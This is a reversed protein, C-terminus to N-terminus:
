GEAWSPSRRASADVDDSTFYALWQAPDAQMMGGNLRGGNPIGWYAQGGSEVGQFTWGFLDGYFREAAEPDSTNLQNLCLAGAENVLQAGISAKPQWVAFVAGTPDQLVAM